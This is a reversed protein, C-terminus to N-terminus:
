EAHGNQQAIIVRALVAAAFWEGSFPEATRGQVDVVDEGLGATSRIRWLVQSRGADRAVGALEIRNVFTCSASLAGLPLIVFGEGALGPEHDPQAFVAPVPQM